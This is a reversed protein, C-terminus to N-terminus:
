LLDDEYREKRALHPLDRGPQADPRQDPRVRSLPTKASALLCEGNRFVDFVLGYISFSGRLYYRDTEGRENEVTFEHTTGFFSFKETAKRGNFYVTEVGTWCSNHFELLDNGIPLSFYRM